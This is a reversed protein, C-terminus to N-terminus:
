TAGEVLYYGGSKKSGKREVLKKNVLTKIQREITKIPRGQLAKTLNKAQIGPRNKIAAFLSKLGENLGENLGEGSLKIQPKRKFVTIFHTGIEM